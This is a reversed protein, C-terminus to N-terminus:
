VVVVDDEERRIASVPVIERAKEKKYKNTTPQNPSTRFQFSVLSAAM